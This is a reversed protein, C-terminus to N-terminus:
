GSVSLFSAETESAVARALLTKGCGPPGYLLVGKPPDIGLRSFVAPHRLPLEIMERVRQIAAGLGGIDEYSIRGSSAMANPADIRIVSDPRILVTGRPMTELVRFEQFRAGFLTVRLRDGTSVPLDALLKGVHEGSLPRLNHTGEPILVV